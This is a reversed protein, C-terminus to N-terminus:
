TLREFQFGAHESYGLEKCTSDRIGL